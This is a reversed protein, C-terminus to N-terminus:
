SRALGSHIKRRHREDDECRRCSMLADVVVVEKVDEESKAVVIAENEGNNGPDRSRRQHQYDHHHKNDTSLNYDYKIPGPGIKCTGNDGCDLTCDYDENYECHDGAWGDLCDCGLSPNNEDGLCTGFNACYYHQSGAEGCYDTSPYQCYAGAFFQPTGGVAPDYLAECDCYPTGGDDTKCPAGRMCQFTGGCDKTEIQQECLSGFYGEPCECHM